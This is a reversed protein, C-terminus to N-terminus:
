KSTNPPPNLDSISSPPPAPEPPLIPPCGILTNLWAEDRGTLFSFFDDIEKIELCFGM